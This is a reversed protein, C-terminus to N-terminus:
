SIVIIPAFLKVAYAGPTLRPYSIGYKNSCPTVQEVRKVGLSTPM